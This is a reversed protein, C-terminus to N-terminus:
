HSPEIKTNGIQVLNNWGEGHDEVGHLDLDAFSERSGHNNTKYHSSEHPRCGPLAKSTSLLSFKKFQTGPLSDRKKSTKHSASPSHNKEDVADGLTLDDIDIIPTHFHNTLPAPSPKVIDM